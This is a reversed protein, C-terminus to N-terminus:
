NVDHNTDRPARPAAGRAAPARARNMQLSNHVASEIAIDM